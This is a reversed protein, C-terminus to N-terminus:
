KVSEYERITMEISSSYHKLSHLSTSLIKYGVPRCYETKDNRRIDHKLSHLFTSMCMKEVINDLIRKTMEHM